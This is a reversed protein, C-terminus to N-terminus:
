NVYMYLACMYRKNSACILVITKNFTAYIYVSSKMYVMLTNKVCIILNVLVCM